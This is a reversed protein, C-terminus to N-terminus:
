DTLTFFKLLGKAMRSAYSREGLIPKPPFFVRLFVAYYQKLSKAEILEFFVDKLLGDMFKRRFNRRLMVRRNFFTNIFLRKSFNPKISNIVHAPVENSFLDKVLALATYLSANLEWKKAKDIVGAWNLGHSYLNLFNNIDCIYKLCKYGNDSTVLNTALYILLEEDNFEYYGAGEQSAARSIGNWMGTVAKRNYGRLWIDYIIDISQSGPNSCEEQWLWEEIERVESFKYGKGALIKHVNERDEWKILLDLDASPGRATIDAYLRQALFTGKLPLAVIGNDAFLALIDISQKRQLTVMPLVSLYISALRSFVHGPIYTYGSIAKLNNYLLVVVGKKLASNIFGEWYIGDKILSVAKEKLGQSLRNGACILMLEETNSLLIARKTFIKRLKFLFLRWEIILSICGSLFHLVGPATLSIRAIIRNLLGWVATRLNIIIGGREIQTVTGAIVDISFPGELGKKHADGKTFYSKGGNNRLIKVVRHIFFWAEEKNRTDVAVADGIKIGRKGVPEIKVRDADKIFPYMSSGKAHLYVPRGEKLLSLNLDKAAINKREKILHDKEEVIM